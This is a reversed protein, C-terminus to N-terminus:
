AASRRSSESATEAAEKAAKARERARRKARARIEKQLTRSFYPQGGVIRYQNARNGASRDIDPAM